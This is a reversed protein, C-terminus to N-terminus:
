LTLMSLRATRSGSFLEGTPVCPPADLDDKGAIGVLMFLAYRRAYTLAAVV